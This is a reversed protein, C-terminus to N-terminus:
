APLIIRPPAQSWALAYCSLTVAFHVNGSSIALAQSEHDVRRLSTLLELSPDAAVPSDSAPYAHPMAVVAGEANEVYGGGSHAHLSLGHSHSNYEANHGDVHAHALPSLCQLLAFLILLFQQIHNKM